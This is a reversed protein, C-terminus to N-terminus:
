GGEPYFDLRHSRVRKVEYTITVSPPEGAMGGHFRLPKGTSADIVLQEQYGDPVFLAATLTLVPRGALTGARVSVRDISDLLRLVGARVDPRGAGAILADLSHSWIAGELQTKPDAPPYQEADPFAKDRAAAPAPAADGGGRVIGAEAMRERARAISGHNASIAAAVRDATSGSDATHGAAVAAALGDLRPAYFYRGNDLYLDAGDIPAADPYRQRRIVLTADGEPAPAASLHQSLRYLPSPAPGAPEPGGASAALVGAAIMAAAAAAVAVRLAGHRSRRPRDRAAHELLARRAAATGAPDADEVPAGHSAVWELEDVTM